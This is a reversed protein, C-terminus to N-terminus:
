QEPAPRSQRHRVRRSCTSLYTSFWNIRDPLGFHPAQRTLCFL